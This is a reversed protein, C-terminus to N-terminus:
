LLLCVSVTIKIMYKFVKIEYHIEKVQRKELLDIIPQLHNKIYGVRVYMECAVSLPHFIVHVRKIQEDNDELDLTRIAHLHCYQLPIIFLGWRDERNM